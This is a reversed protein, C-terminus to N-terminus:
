RNGFLKFRADFARGEHLGHQRATRRHERGRNEDRYPVLRILLSNAIGGNVEGYASEFGHGVVVVPDVRKRGNGLAVVSDGYVRGSESRIGHIYRNGAAF